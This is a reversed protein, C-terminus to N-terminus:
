PKTVRAAPDDFEVSHKLDDGSRYHRYQSFEASYGHFPSNHLGSLVGDVTVRAVLELDGLATLLAPDLGPSHAGTPVQGPSRTAQVIQTSSFGAGSRSGAREDSTGPRPWVQSAEM